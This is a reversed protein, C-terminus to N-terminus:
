PVPPLTLPDTARYKIVAGQAEPLRKFVRARSAFAIQLKGPAGRSVDTWIAGGYGTTAEGHNSDVVFVEVADKDLVGARGIRVITAYDTTAGCNRVETVAYLGSTPNHATQTARSSCLPPESCGALALVTALLYRVM